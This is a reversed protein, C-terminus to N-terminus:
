NLEPPPEVSGLRAMIPGFQHFSPLMKEKKCWLFLYIWCIGSTLLHQSISFVTLTEESVDEWTLNFDRSDM